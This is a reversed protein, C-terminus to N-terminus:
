ATAIGSINPGLLRIGTKLGIQRLQEELDPRGAERFGGSCIVAGAAGKEAAEGLVGAVFQFPVIILVLDLRGPIDSVSPFVELGLIQGGKPNVPFIAGDYGGRILSDLTMYGFKAPDGSAGVVAISRANFIRRISAVTDQCSFHSTYNIPSRSTATFLEPSM